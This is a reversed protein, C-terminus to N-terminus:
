LYTIVPLSCVNDVQLLDSYRMCERTELPYDHHYDDYHEDLGQEVNLYRAHNLYSGINSEPEYPGLQGYRMVM